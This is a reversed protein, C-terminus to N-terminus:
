VIIYCLFLIKFIKKELNYNGLKDYLIVMCNLLKKSYINCRKCKVKEKWIKFYKIFDKFMKVM